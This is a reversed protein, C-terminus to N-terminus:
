PAIYLVTVRVDADDTPNAGGLTFYPEADATLTYEVGGAVLAGSAAFSSQASAVALAAVIGDADIAAGTGDQTWARVGVDITVSTGLAANSVYAGLLRAGKPIRDRNGCTDGQAWAVTDPGTITSARVIGSSIGQMKYGAASSAVRAAQRSTQEAM